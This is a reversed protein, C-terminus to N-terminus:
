NQNFSEHEPAFLSICRKVMVDDMYQLSMFKARYILENIAESLNLFDIAKGRNWREREFFDDPMKTLLNIYRFEIKRFDEKLDTLSHDQESVPSVIGRAAQIKKKELLLSEEMGAIKDYLIHRKEDLRRRTEIRRDESIAYSIFVAFIRRWIERYGREHNLM